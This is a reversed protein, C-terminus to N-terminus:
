FGASVEFRELPFGESLGFGLKCRLKFNARLQQLRLVRWSGVYSADVWLWIM